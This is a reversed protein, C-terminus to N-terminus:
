KGGGFFVYMAAAVIVFLIIITKTDMKKKEKAMAETAEIKRIIIEAPSSLRKNDVCDKILGARTLPRLDWEPVIATPTKGNWNWIVDDEGVRVDGELGKVILWGLKFEGITPLITKNMRLLLVQVKNKLLGRKLQAKVRGKVKFSKKKFKEDVEKKGAMEEVKNGLEEISERLSLEKKEEQPKEEPQPEEVVAEKKKKELKRQFISKKKM